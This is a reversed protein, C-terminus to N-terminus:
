YDGYAGGGDYCDDMSDGRTESGRHKMYDGDDQQDFIDDMRELFLALQEKTTLKEAVKSKVEEKTSLFSIPFQESFAQVAIWKEHHNIARMCHDKLSPNPGGVDVEKESTLSLRRAKGRLIKLDGDADVRCWEEDEADM